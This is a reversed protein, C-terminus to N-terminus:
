RLRVLIDDADDLGRPLDQRFPSLADARARGARQRGRGEDRLRVRGELPERHVTDLVEVSLLRQDPRDTRSPDLELMVIVTYRVELSDERAAVPAEAPNEFPGPAAASLELAPGLQVAVVEPHRREAVLAHVRVKV